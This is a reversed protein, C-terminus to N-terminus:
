NQAVVPKGFAYKVTKSRPSHAWQCPLLEHSERDAQHINKSYKRRVERGKGCIAVAGRRRPIGYHNCGEYKEFDPM